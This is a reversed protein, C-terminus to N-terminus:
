KSVAHKPGQTKAMSFDGPNSSLHRRPPELFLHKLADIGFFTRAFVACRARRWLSYGPSQPDWPYPSAMNLTCTSVKRPLGRWQCNVSQVDSWNHGECSNRASNYALTFRSNWSIYKLPWDAPTSAISFIDEHAFAVLGTCSTGRSSPRKSVTAIPPDAKMIRWPWSPNLVSKSDRAVKSSSWQWRDIYVAHPKCRESKISAPISCPLIVRSDVSVEDRGSSPKPTLWSETRQWVHWSWRRTWLVTFVGFLGWGQFSRRSRGKWLSHSEMRADQVPIQRQLLVTLLSSLLLPLSSTEVVRLRRLNFIVTFLIQRALRRYSHLCVQTCWYTFM